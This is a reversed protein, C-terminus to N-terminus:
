HQQKRDRAPATAAGDRGDSVTVGDRSALDRAADEHAPGTHVVRQRM